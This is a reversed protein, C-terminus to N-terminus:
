GLSRQRISVMTIWVLVTLAVLWEAAAVPWFALRAAPDPAAFAQISLDPLSFVEIVFWVFAAIVPLGPLAMARPFAPIPRLLAAASFILVAVLGCVFFLLAVGAHAELNNMPFVGVLLGAAGSALGAAGFFWSTIGGMVIATAVMFVALCIGGAILGVNFVPALVSVGIEGLESVWHNLPSYSEGGRGTYTLATIFMAASIVAVGIIGAASAVQSPRDSRAM